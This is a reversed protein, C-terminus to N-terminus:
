IGYIHTLLKKFSGLHNTRFPMQSQLDGSKASEVNGKAPTIFRQKLWLVTAFTFFFSHPGNPFLYRPFYKLINEKKFMFRNFVYLSSFTSKKFFINDWCQISFM